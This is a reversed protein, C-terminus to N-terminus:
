DFEVTGYVLGKQRSYAFLCPWKDNTRFYQMDTNKGHWWLSLSWWWPAHNPAEFRPVAPIQALWAVEDPTVVAQYFLTQDALGVGAAYMERSAPIMGISKGATHFDDDKALDLRAAQHTWLIGGAASLFLIGM